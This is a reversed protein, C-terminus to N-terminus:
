RGDRRVLHSAWLQELTEAVEGDVDAPAVGLPAAVGRLLEPYASGRPGRRALWEMVGDAPEGLWHTDGSKEHYALVSAGVRRVAVARGLIWTARRPPVNCPPAGSDEGGDAM